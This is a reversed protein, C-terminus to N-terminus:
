DNWITLTYNRLKPFQAVSQPHPRYTWFNVDGENDKTVSARIFTASHCTMPNYIEIRHLSPTWGEHELVSAEAHFNKTEPEHCLLSVEIM